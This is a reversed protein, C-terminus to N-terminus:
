SIDIDFQNLLGALGDNSFKAKKIRNNVPNINFNYAMRFDAKELVTNEFKADTLDCDDFVANSLDCGTFDVENLQTKKFVTKKMKLDFFSAHKLNCGTFTAALAFTNCNYFLLGLMKCDKFEVDRFGTKTLNCLSLNCSDFSCNIFAADVLSTNSFNCQKFVCDEYMGAAFKTVTYDIQQFTQDYINITNM